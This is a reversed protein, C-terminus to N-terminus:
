NNLAHGLTNTFLAEQELMLLFDTSNLSFQHFLQRTSLRENTANYAKNSHQKNPNSTRAVSRIMELHRMAYRLTM